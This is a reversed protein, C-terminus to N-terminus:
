LAVYGAAKRGPGRRESVVPAIQEADLLGALVADLTRADFLHDVGQCLKTRTISGGPANKILRLVLKARAQHDSQVMHDAVDAILRRTSWLAFDAGWLMDEVSVKAAQGGIGIARITALRVGMEVTRQTLAEHENMSAVAEVLHDFAKRALGDPGGEWPVSVLPRDPQMFHMTAHALPGGVSAIAKLSEVLNAPPDFVDATPEVDRPNNLTAVLCFRNLFGSVVDAGQLVSYLEDATTLGIISLAPSVIPEPQQRDRGSAWRPPVYEEFSLSWFQRLEGSIAKEHSSGNRSNIKGILMSFEDMVCLSAPSQSVHQILASASTFSSPGIFGRLGAANLLQAGAKKPGGKGSGTGGTILLYLHTASKTPGCFKRGAVTGVIGLAMALSMAPQPKRATATIWRAIDGVLGPVDLLHEPIEASVPAASRCEAQGAPMEAGAEFGTTAPKQPTTVATEAGPKRRMPPPLDRDEHSAALAAVDVSVTDDVLGVRDELWRLAAGEPLGQQRMVLDIASFTENTGFDKIGQPNISLNRKRGETPRGSSSDRCLDVAEYGGRAPRLGHLNDLHPVWASLNAMAAVKAREFPDESDLQSPDFPRREADDERGGSPDYGCLELTEVLADLDDQTLEPLDRAPVPGCLWVYPQLTEPHVSPPVITQKTQFGTLLDVLRRSQGSGRPIRSDDFSRSKIAETARFFATLGKAGKKQMPSAPLARVITDFAEPDTVDVDIAIVYTPEGAANPGAPTGMVIGVNPNGAAGMALKLPFGALPSTRLAQWGETPRWSGGSLNGPAKGASRHSVTAPLISLPSYGMGLLAPTAQAFPSISAAPNM